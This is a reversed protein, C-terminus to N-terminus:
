FNKLCRCFHTGYLATLDQKSGQKSYCCINRFLTNWFSKMKESTNTARDQLFATVPSTESVQIMKEQLFRIELMLKTLCLTSSSRSPLSLLSAKKKQESQCGHLQTIFFCLSQTTQFSIRYKWKINKDNNM